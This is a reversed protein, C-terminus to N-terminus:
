WVLSLSWGAKSYSHGSLAIHGRTRWEVWLLVVAVLKVSLDQPWQFSPQSYVSTGETPLFIFGGVEWGPLCARVCGTDCPKRRSALIIFDQPKPDGGLAPSIVHYIADDEDVQQM